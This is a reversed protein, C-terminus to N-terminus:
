CASPCYEYIRKHEQLAQLRFRGKVYKALVFDSGDVPLKFNYFNEYEQYSLSNRKRLMQSHYDPDLVTKYGPQVIASFFEGACGSGYSYLGIRCNTLDKDTNELLSLISVYLAATYCNGIERNYCLSNALCDGSDNINNIEALKKHAKEVLRPLSVHYCFYDHDRFQRGSLVSYKHWVKELVATYLECSYKGDVLAEESYNPRWFDMADETYIGSEPEIVLLRPNVALLIAAAGAGQSSEGSSNLGYRAIDSAIVLIKKGPNCTLMAIAM